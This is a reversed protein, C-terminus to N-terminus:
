IHQSHTPLRTVHQSTDTDHTTRKQSTICLPSLPNPKPTSNHPSTPLPLDNCCKQICYPIATTNALPQYTHWEHNTHEHHASIPPPSVTTLPSQYTTDLQASSYITHLIRILETLPQTPYQILIHKRLLKYSQTPNSYIWLLHTEYIRGSRFAVNLAFPM